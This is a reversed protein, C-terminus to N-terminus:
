DHESKMSTESMVAGFGSSEDEQVVGVYGMLCFHVFLFAKMTSTSPSCVKSM